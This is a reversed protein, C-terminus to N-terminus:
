SVKHTHKRIAAFELDRERLIKLWSECKEISLSYLTSYLTSYLDTFMWDSTSSAGACQTGELNAAQVAPLVFPTYLTQKYQWSLFVCVSERERGTKVGGVLKRLTIWMKSQSILETRREGAVCGVPGSWGKILNSRITAMQKSQRRISWLETWIPSCFVLSRETHAARLHVAKGNYITHTHTHAEIWIYISCCWCKFKNRHTSSIRNSESVILSNGNVNLKWKTGDVKMRKMLNMRWNVTRADLAVVGAGFNLM